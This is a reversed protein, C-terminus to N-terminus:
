HVMNVAFNYIFYLKESFQRYGTTNSDVEFRVGALGGFVVDPFKKGIRLRFMMAFLYTVIEYLLSHADFTWSYVPM